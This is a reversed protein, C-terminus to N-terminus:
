NALARSIIKFEQSYGNLGKELALRYQAKGNERDGQHIYLLGLFFYVLPESPDLAQAHVIERKTKAFRNNEYYAKALALHLRLQIRTEYDKNATASEASESLAHKKEICALGEKWTSIGAPNGALEELCYGLHLYAEAIPKVNICAHLHEIARNIHGNARLKIARLLLVPANCSDTDLRLVSDIAISPNLNDEIANGKYRAAQQSNSTSTSNSDPPTLLATSSNRFCILNSNSYTLNHKISVGSYRVYCRKGFNGAWRLPGLQM